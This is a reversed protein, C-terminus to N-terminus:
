CPLGQGHPVAAGGETDYPCRSTVVHCMYIVGVHVATVFCPSRSPAAKVFLIYLCTCTVFFGGNANPPTAHKQAHM